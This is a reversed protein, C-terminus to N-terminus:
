VQFAHTLRHGEPEIVGCAKSTKERYELEASNAGCYPSSIVQRSEWAKRNSPVCGDWTLM